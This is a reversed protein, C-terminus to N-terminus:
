SENSGLNEAKLGWVELSQGGLGLRTALPNEVMLGRGWARPKGAKSVATRLRWGYAGLGQGQTKLGRRTEGAESGKIKMGM